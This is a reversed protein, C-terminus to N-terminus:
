LAFRQSDDNKAKYYGVILGCLHVFPAKFVKHLDHALMRLRYYGVLLHGNSFRYPLQFFLAKIVSVMQQISEV